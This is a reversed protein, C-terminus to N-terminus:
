NCTNLGNCKLFVLKSVKDATLRSRHPRMIFGSASFIREIPASTAPLSLLKLALHKSRILVKEEKWYMLTNCKMTPLSLVASAEHAADMDESSPMESKSMFDSFLSCGTSLVVQTASESSGQEVM